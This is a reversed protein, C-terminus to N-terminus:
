SAALPPANIKRAVLGSRSACSHFLNIATPNPIRQFHIEVYGSEIDKVEISM